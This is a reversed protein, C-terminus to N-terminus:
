ESGEIKTLVFGLKKAKQSLNKVIQDQYNKEYFDIGKEVYAIGFKMARYFLCAIKRATATIAKPAGLRSRLRRYYAGLATKSKGLSFASLRFATAARNVVKRTRASFIKEGTIKNAPSLGLWSTFHKETPWKNMDLGIESTITQLTLTELGPIKTLDVGTIRYLENRMDFKPQTKPEKKKIKPQELPQASTDIKSDIKQYYQVIQNDCETIKEQYIKYLAFEQKLSFLHEERYEGELAKAIEEESSKIRSGRLSALVQPDREGDLIAEIIKIGTVGTIDSIVKHLQLNMQTLAKQMRQIHSSTSRTLNERQRIYSRLVCIEDAPRFSGRLLGYSHLQQLWQCDQVDTKRGPVNKVHRANVLIVEFGHSELVQFLPIWYVGTSEMAVSKINCRELWGALMHLDQTFCGFKRVPQTDRDVPVCVYHTESGIDIGAADSYVLPLQKPVKKM